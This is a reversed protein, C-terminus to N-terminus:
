FQYEANKNEIFYVKESQFKVSYLFQGKILVGDTKFEPM